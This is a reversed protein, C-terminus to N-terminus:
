LDAAVVALDGRLWRTQPQFGGERLWDLQDDLRDPIDIEDSVDIVADEPDDPVIVDGLVFRGGPRLVSAIRGFLDRKAAADLHHIALTSYVVDFPGPPLQEELARHLLEAHPFAARARTLMAESADVATLRAHPYRALVRRATEGTGIGLELADRVDAGDTAAAVQQQLEDFDHIKDRIQGVYLDPDWEVNAM